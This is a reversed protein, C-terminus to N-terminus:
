VKHASRQPSVASLQKIFEAVSAAERGPNREIIEVIASGIVAADAFEGVAAFQEATSIGFGVAIPLKTLARLRSVLKRADEPLQQRAGTVGTRSVAYIFGNSAEAIRELREDTSTPAALFVTALQNRRMERVYDASEEVPLDTILAGDIGAHRAVKCFNQLGMRLVPNLYSFIILGASQSHQRVEAALKLVDALSVSHQLARQSARQIVPGDAVPDSFPVGLEIVAAGAEIAALVVDRTTALDPDGCTVYAVLSHRIQFSFPM